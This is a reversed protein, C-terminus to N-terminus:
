CNGHCSNTRFCSSSITTWGINAEQSYLTVYVDIKYHTTAPSCITTELKTSTICRWRVDNTDILIMSFRLTAIGALNCSRILNETFEELWVFGCGDM